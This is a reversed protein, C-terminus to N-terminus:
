QKGQPKPATAPRKEKKEITISTPGAIIKFETRRNLQHEEETCKVGNACQNLLQTEGYGVPVIRESVVGRETLWKKASESRRQSLNQNYEDGGRSDTHSSLEIKMDKYKNMLDLLFTLDPESEPLIDAKDLAYYIKNLRIPENTRVVISDVPAPPRKTRLTIKKEMNTTKKIGVTNFKLTDSVYGDRDAILMYSRGPQLEFGFDNGNPNTTTGIRTADKVKESLDYIQVTAGTLAPNEKEAGRKFRFTKAMLNVKVREIDWAYIDDCCTKSKLNNVGPRNSVLFGSYGDANQVYHHDDLSSNVPTGLNKPESWVSGNWQSEFVDLGGLTPRGNTSFYLKGDRYFPSTEDGATNIVDGLNVPAGFQGQGKRPAYYIDDGGKGGPLNAVFFLVKEGFLEGEAPHKAIFDGNVGTVENAAGWGDSNLPAYFIKSEKMVNNETQVRTFYMTNGDATVSVNGQHWGERNIQTGLAQPEGYEEGSKQTTYIKSYWDGEKGDLTVVTKSRMSTFYLKGNSYSPSSETQPANLKKGGNVVTVNPTPKVKGAMEAGALENKAKAMQAPTLTSAGADLYARFAQVADAYKGNHKLSLGYLYRLDNVAAADLTNKRNVLRTLQREATAYDRLQFNLQAIKAATQIERTDDYVKEYFELAAYPNNTSEAEEAAKQMKATTPRNIPQALAVVSSLCALLLIYFTKSMTISTNPHEPTYTNPHTCHSLYEFVCTKGVEVGNRLIKSM